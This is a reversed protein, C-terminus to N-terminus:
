FLTDILKHLKMGIRKKLGPLNEGPETRKLRVIQPEKLRPDYSERVKLQALLSEANKNLKGSKIGYFFGFDSDRYRQYFPYPYERLIIDFGAFDLMEVVGSASPTTILSQFGTSDKEPNERKLKLIPAPEPSAYTHVLMMSTTLDGLKKVVDIPASLHYLLGFLLTIDFKNENPSIDQINKIEFDCDKYGYYEKLLNARRIAEDRLDIGKLYPAGKKKFQFGYFGDWCGTDLVRAGKIGGDLLYGAITEITPMLTEVRWLHWDKFWDAFLEVWVGPELEFPHRWDTIKLLEAKLQEKDMNKDMNKEMTIEM